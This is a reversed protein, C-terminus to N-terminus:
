AQLTITRNGAFVVVTELPGIPQHMHCFHAIEPATGSITWTEFRHGAEQTFDQSSIVLAFLLFLLSLKM